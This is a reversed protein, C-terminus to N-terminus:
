RQRTSSEAAAPSEPRRGRSRHRQRANPVCNRVVSAAAGSATARACDHTRPAIARHQTQFVERRAEAPSRAESTRAQRPPSRRSARAGAPIRPDGRWSANPRPPRCAVSSSAPRQAGCRCGSPAMPTGDSRRKMSGNSLRTLSSARAHTRGPVQPLLLLKITRANMSPAVVSFPWAGIAPVSNM